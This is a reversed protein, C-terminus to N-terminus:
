KIKFSEGGNNEKIDPILYKFKNLRIETAIKIQNTKKLELIDTLLQEEKKERHILSKLLQSLIHYKKFMKGLM